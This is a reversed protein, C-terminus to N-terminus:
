ADGDGGGGGGDARLGGGSARGTNLSDLADDVIRRNQRGHQSLRHGHDGHVEHVQDDDLHHRPQHQLQAESAPGQLEPPDNTGLEEGIRPSTSLCNQSLKPLRPPTNKIAHMATTTHIVM